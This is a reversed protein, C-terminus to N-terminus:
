GPPAERRLITKLVGDIIREGHYRPNYRTAIMKRCHHSLSDKCSVPFLARDLTSMLSELNDVEYLFGTSGEEVAEVEPFQSNRRANWLRALADGIVWGRIPNPM